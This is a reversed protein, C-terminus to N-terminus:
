GPTAAQLARGPLWCAMRTARCGDTFFPESIPYFGLHRYAEFAYPTANLEVTRTEPHHLELHTRASEWLARAIGRRLHAPDVFLMALLSPRPMLLFGVPEEDEFAAAAYSGTAMMHALREPTSERLFVQRAHPEWDVASLALFSRQVLASLEPAQAPTVPVPAFPM